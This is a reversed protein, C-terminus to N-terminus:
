SRDEELAHALQRSLQLVAMAYLESHNYRTIVYFNRTVMWFEHGKEGTLDLLAVQTDDALDFCYESGLTDDQCSVAVVGNKRATALSFSPKYGKKTLAQYGQGEIRARAAVPLGPQWHHRHFYNAVSGIADAPSNVLDTVGDQDYDVAYAQYSTPIFQALGMAGAYSGTIESADIHAQNEMEMLAVLQGRFFSARPPYDFGLTTLADLVRYTGKHRGYYTEVGIIALIIERPVGYEAEARALEERNERAFAVGADVREQQLFIKQYRAWTMTHEAPRAISELIKDQRRAQSLLERARKEDVGKKVVEQILAEAQPHDAYGQEEAFATAAPFVAALFAFPPLLASLRVGM